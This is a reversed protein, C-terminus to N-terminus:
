RTRVPRDPERGTSTAGGATATCDLPVQPSGVMGLQVDQRPLLAGLLWDVLVRLRNGPMALLHYGRTVVTAPLGSLPVHLPDAAADRGGLEVVFGLDRHRYRRRTGHGLSAAVNRAALRGQRSAHQATMGTVQGPRTLDPVAAADGCATIEPHGPM